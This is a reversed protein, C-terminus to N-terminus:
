NAESIKITYMYSDDSYSDIEITNFGPNLTVTYVDGNEIDEFEYASDYMTGDYYINLDWEGGPAVSTTQINITATSELEIIIYGYSWDDVTGTVTDGIEVFHIDGDFMLDELLSNFYREMDSPKIEEIASSVIQDVEEANYYGLCGSMTFALFLMFIFLIKKM